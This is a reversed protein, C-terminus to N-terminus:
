ILSYQYMMQRIDERSNNMMVDVISLNPVFEDTAMQKYSSSQSNMFKLTIENKKFATPDYLKMGGIPNIYTQAKLAKCISIIKDQGRLKNDKSIDSSYIIRTKIDLYDCIMKLSYDIFYVLKEEKYRLIDEIIPFAVQYNRAKSYAQKITLLLKDPNYVDSIEINNICINQSTASLPVTIYHPKGNILIKNRNIWGKNIYNVDDYVVFIEVASILQWYGVYPFLYPQMIALKM